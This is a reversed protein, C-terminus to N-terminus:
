DRARRSKLAELLTGRRYSIDELPKFNRLRTVIWPNLYRSRVIEQMFTTFVISFAAGTVQALGKAKDDETTTFARIFSELPRSLLEALPVVVAWHLIVEPVRAIKQLRQARLEEPSGGYKDWAAPVALITGLV